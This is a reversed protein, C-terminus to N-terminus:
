DGKVEAILLAKNVAEIIAKSSCTAGSVTDVNSTTNNNLIQKVVSPYKTTGRVARNMYWDNATDYNDGVGMVEDISTITDNFLSIKLSLTYEEFDYSDDPYCVVQAMYTGNEYKLKASPETPLTTSNTANTTTPITTPTTTTKTVYAKELANSVAEIIGNSSFTAGSVTDVNPSQKSIINSTLTRAKSFYQEDDVTSLINIKSIKGNKIVVSVKVDGRYGEGVGVYTGDKFTANTMNPISPKTPSKKPTTPITKNSNNNKINNNTKVTSGDKNVVAKQLANSVAEIIGNSSYTAGSVTDVNTNQSKYISNILGKAKAIYEDGDGTKVIEINNIKGDKITVRVTLNGNFGVGTGYYVGDKYKQNSSLTLPLVSKVKENNSNANSNSESPLPSTEVVSNTINTTSTTSNTTTDELNLTEREKVTDASFNGSALNNVAFAVCVVVVVLPIIYKIQLLKKFINKM